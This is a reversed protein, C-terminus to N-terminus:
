DEPDRDLSAYWAALAKVQARTLTKVVVSMRPDHRAGEIYDTLSKELYQVPQGALHPVTPDTSIGLRGHCVVCPRALQEGTATDQATAAACVLGLTAVAAASAVAVGRRLM